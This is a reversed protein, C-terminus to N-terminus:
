NCNPGPLSVLVPAARPLHEKLAMKNLKSNARNTTGSGNILRLILGRVVGAEPQDFAIILSSSVKPYRPREAYVPCTPFPCTLTPVVTIVLLFAVNLGHM